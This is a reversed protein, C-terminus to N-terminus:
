HIDGQIDGNEVASHVIVYTEGAEIHKRLNALTHHSMDSCTCTIDADTLVGEALIGNTTGMVSGSLKLVAHNHDMHSHILNAETVDEMNAVILKFYVSSNDGEFQFKVEGQAQTDEGSLHGRHNGQKAKQSRAGFTIEDAVSAHQSLSVDDKTCSAVLLLFGFFLLNKM